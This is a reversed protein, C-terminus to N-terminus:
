GHSRPGPGGRGPDCTKLRAANRRALMRGDGAGGATSAGIIKGLNKILDAAGNFTCAWDDKETAISTM